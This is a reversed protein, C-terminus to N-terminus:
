GTNSYLVFFMEADHVSEFSAQQKQSSTALGHRLVTGLWLQWLSTPPWSIVAYCGQCQHRFIPTADLIHSDVGNLLVLIFLFDASRVCISLTLCVPAELAGRVLVLLALPHGLFLALGLKFVNALVQHFLDGFGVCFVNALSGIDDSALLVPLYIGVPVFLPLFVRLRTLSQRLGLAFWLQLGPGLRLWVCLTFLNGPLVAPSVFPFLADFNGLLFADIHRFFHALINPLLPTLDDVGFSGLLSNSDAVVVVVVKIAWDVVRFNTVVVKLNDLRRPLIVFYIKFLVRLFFFESPGVLLTLHQSSLKQKVATCNEWKLIHKYLFYVM